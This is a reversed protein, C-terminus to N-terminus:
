CVSASRLGCVESPPALGALDTWFERDPRVKQRQFEHHEILVEHSDLSERVEETLHEAFVLPLWYRRWTDDDFCIRAIIAQNRYVEHWSVPYHSERLFRHRSVVRSLQLIRTGTFFAKVGVCAESAGWGRLHPSWAVREYLSRPILYAPARLGSVQSVARWAFRQRWRASFYGRQPCLEFDAGHLRWRLFGFDRIAPCTIAGAHLALKACEDLCGRSVRQHADLYCLVDGGAAMSGKHRSFGIGIRRVNQIMSVRDTEVADCSGDVSGDDVVIIEHLHATNEIVSRVTQALEVKENHVTIIVSIRPHHM